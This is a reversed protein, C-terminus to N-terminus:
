CCRRRSARASTRSRGATLRSASFNPRTPATTKTNPM